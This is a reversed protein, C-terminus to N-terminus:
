IPEKWVLDKKHKNLFQNWISKNFLRLQVEVRSLPQEAKESISLIIGMADFPFFGRNMIMIGSIIVFEGVSVLNKEIECILSQHQFETVKFAQGKKALFLDRNSGM